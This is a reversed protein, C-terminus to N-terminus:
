IIKSCIVVDRRIPIGKKETIAIAREIINYYFLTMRTMNDINPEIGLMVPNRWEITQTDEDYRISSYRDLREIPETERNFVQRAYGRYYRRLIEKKAEPTLIENKKLEQMFVRRLRKSFYSNIFAIVEDQTISFHIHFGCSQNVYFPEIQKFIEKYIGRVEEKYHPITVIEVGRGGREDPHISGDGEISFAENDDFGNEKSYHYSRRIIYGAGTICELEFGYLIKKM